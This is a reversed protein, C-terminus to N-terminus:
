SATVFGHCSDMTIICAEGQGLIGYWRACCPCADPPELLPAPNAPAATEAGVTSTFSSCCYAHSRDTCIVVVRANSMQKFTSMQEQMGKQACQIWRTNTTVLVSKEPTTGSAHLLWGHNSWHSDGFASALQLRRVIHHHSRCVPMIINLNSGALIIIHAACQCSKFWRVCVSSGWTLM